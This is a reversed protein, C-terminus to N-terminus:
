FFFFYSLVSITPLILLNQEKTIAEYLFMLFFSFSFLCLFFCEYCPRYPDLPDISKKTFKEGHFDFTQKAFLFAFSIQFVIIWIAFAIFFQAIYNLDISLNITM